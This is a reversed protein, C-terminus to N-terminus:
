EYTTDGISLNNHSPENEIDFQLMSLMKEHQNIIDILFGRSIEDEYLESCQMAVEHLFHIQKEHDTILDRIEPIIGPEERLQAMKLFEEFSSAPISALRRVHVAIEHSIDILQEFQLNFLIHTNPFGAGRINWHASRTKQALVAENALVTNLIRVVQGGAEFNSETNPHHLIGLKLTHNEYSIQNM